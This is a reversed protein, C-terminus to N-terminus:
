VDPIRRSILTPLQYMGGAIGLPTFGVLGLMAPTVVAITPGSAICAVLTTFQKPNSLIWEKLRESFGSLDERTFEIEPLTIQGIDKLLDGSTM